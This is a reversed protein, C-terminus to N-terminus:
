TLMGEEDSAASIHGLAIDLRAKRIETMAVLRATLVFLVIAFLSLVSGEPGVSGGSIWAPGHIAPHFLRGASVLASDPVGFVFSQAYDWSTHFGIALWLSGTVRFSYALGIGFLFAQMGGMFNEGGGKLWHPVGFLASLLIVAPWFSLARSAEVLPYGRFLIEEAFGVSLCWAGILLANFV